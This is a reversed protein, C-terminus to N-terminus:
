YQDLKGGLGLRATPCTVECIKSSSQSSAALNTVIVYLSYIFFAGLFIASHYLVTLFYLRVGVGLRVQELPTWFPIDTQNVINGCCPCLKLEQTNKSNLLEILRTQETLLDFNGLRNAQRHM